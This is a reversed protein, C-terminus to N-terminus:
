RPPASVRLFAFFAKVYILVSSRQNFVSLSPSRTRRLKLRSVVHTWSSESNSLLCPLSNVAVHISYMRLHIM